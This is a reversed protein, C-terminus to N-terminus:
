DTLVGAQILTDISPKWIGSHPTNYMKALFWPAVSKEVFFALDKNQEEVPKIWPLYSKSNVSYQHFGLEASTSLKRHTGAIFVITCASYCRKEVSTSLDYKKVLKALGRGEVIVGGDSNLILQNMGSNNDLITKLQRTAGYGIDGELLLTNHNITNLSFTPEAPRYEDVARQLYDIDEGMQNAINSLALTVSMLVVALAVYYNSASGYNQIRNGASRFVGVTQWVLIALWCPVLYLLLVFESAHLLTKLWITAYNIAQVTALTLLITNLVLSRTLSQKGRWHDSFYSVM